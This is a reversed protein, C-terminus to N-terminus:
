PPDEMKDTDATEGVVEEVIDVDVHAEKYGEHVEKVVQVNRKLLFVDQNSKPM